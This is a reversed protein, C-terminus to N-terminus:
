KLKVSKLVTYVPGEPRLESRILEVSKVCLSPREQPLSLGALESLLDKMGRPGRVRGLTLHPVFPRADTEFGGSRLSSGLLEALSRMNGAGDDVGLWLVRPAGQPPFFGAGSLFVDFVPFVSVAELAKEAAALREDQVEGLFHLTFHMSYPATWKVDACSRKLRKQAALAAQVFAEGPEVAMFLRM